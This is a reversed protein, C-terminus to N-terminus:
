SSREGCTTPPSGCCTTGSPFDLREEQIFDDLYSNQGIPCTLLMAGGPALMKRMSAYARLTKDTGEAERGMRRARADLDVPHRRVAEGAHLRRHGDNIVNTRGRVQRARRPGARRLSRARQRSRAPATRATGRPIRARTRARRCARQAVCPTTTTQTTTAATAWPSPANVGSAPSFPYTLYATALDLTDGLLFKVGREHLMFRASSVLRRAERKVETAM